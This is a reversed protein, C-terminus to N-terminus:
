ATPEAAGLMFRLAGRRRDSLRAEDLCALLWARDFHKLVPWPARRLAELTYKKVVIPDTLLEGLTDPAPHKLIGPFVPVELQEGSALTCRATGHAQVFRYTRKV